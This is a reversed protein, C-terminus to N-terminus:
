TKRVIHEYYAAAKGDVADKDMLFAKALDAFFDPTAVNYRKAVECYDAYLANMVAWFEYLRAGSTGLGHKQAYPKVQDVTWKGGSLKAADEGQLSAMWREAEDRTLERGVHEADGNGERELHAALRYLMDLDHLDEMSEGYRKLDQITNRVGQLDIM